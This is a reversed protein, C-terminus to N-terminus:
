WDEFSFRYKGDLRDQAISRIPKAPMGSILSDDADLKSLVVSGLSIINRNGISSGPSFKVASGIYNEEGIIIDRDIVSLGHTWFQSGYGAIWTGNGIALKGYIDFFHNNLILTKSGLELSPSYNRDKFRDDIIKWSSFFRNNRGIRSGSGIMVPFPGKFLNLPGIVVSEGLTAEPVALVTLFGVTSSSPIKFGM